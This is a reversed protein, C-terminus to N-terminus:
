RGMPWSLGEYMCSCVQLDSRDYRLYGFISIRIEGEFFGEALTGVEGGLKKTAEKIEDVVEKSISTPDRAYIDLGAPTFLTKSFYTVAWGQDPDYGLVQWKSTAIMLWGKGRWHYSVASVYGEPADHPTAVLTDVGVVRSKPSGPSSRSRYEVVDDFKITTSSPSVLLPSYTITVDSRSQVVSDINSAARPLLSLVLRGCLYRLLSLMGNGWLNILTLDNELYHLTSPIRIIFPLQHTLHPSPCLSIAIALVLNSCHHSHFSVFNHSPPRRGHLWCTPRAVHCGASRDRRDFCAFDHFNALAETKGVNESSGRLADLTGSTGGLLERVRCTAM